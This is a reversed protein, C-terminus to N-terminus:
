FPLDEDEPPSWLGYQAYKRGLANLVGAKVTNGWGTMTIAARSWELTVHVIYRKKKGQGTSTVYLSELRAERTHKSVAALVERDHFCERCAIALSSAVGLMEIGHELRGM